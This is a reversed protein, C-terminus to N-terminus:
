PGDEGVVGDILERAIDLHGAHRAYEQLVHFLIALLTPTEDGAAYKGGVAAIASPAHHAVVDGTRLGVADLDDLIDALPRTTVWQDDADRDAEPEGVTEGLFGWVIWRREMHVLHEALEPLTWGSPVVHRGLEDPTLGATKRRVESRFFDLYEVIRAVPDTVSGDPEPLPTM